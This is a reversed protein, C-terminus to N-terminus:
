VDRWFIQLGPDYNVAEDAEEAVSAPRASPNNTAHRIVPEDLEEVNDQLREDSYAHNSGRSPPGKRIALLPGQEKEGFRTGKTKYVLIPKGVDHAPSASRSSKRAQPSKSLSKLWASFGSIQQSNQWGDWSNMGQDPTLRPSSGSCDIASEQDSMSDWEPDALFRYPFETPEGGSTTMLDHYVVDSASSAPKRDHISSDRHKNQLQSRASRAERSTITEKWPMTSELYDGPDINSSIESGTFDSEEMNDLFSQVMNRSTPSPRAQKQTSDRNNLTQHPHLDIFSADSSTSSSSTTSLTRRSEGIAFRVNRPPSQVNPRRLTNPTTQSEGEGPQVKAPSAKVNGPKPRRNKEKSRKIGAEETKRNANGRRSDAKGDGASTAVIPKEQKSNEHVVNKGTVIENELPNEL